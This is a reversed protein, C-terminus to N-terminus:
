KKLKEITKAKLKNKIASKSSNSNTNVKDALGIFAVCFGSLLIFNALDAYKQFTIIYLHQFNFFILCYM